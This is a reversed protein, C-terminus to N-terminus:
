GGHKTILSIEGDSELYASEVASVDKVGKKRLASMLEDETVMERRMNARRLRGDEILAARRDRLLVRFFPGHFELANFVYSWGVVLAIMLVIDGVSTSDAVIGTKAMSGIVILVLMDALSIKGTTRTPMVRLLVLLAFYVVSARLAIEWLPMTLAFVEMM